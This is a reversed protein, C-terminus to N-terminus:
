LEMAQLNLDVLHWLKLLTTINEEDILMKQGEENYM